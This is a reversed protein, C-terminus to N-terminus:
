ISAVRIASVKDSLTFRFRMDEGFWQIYNTGWGNNFLSFHIGKTIDPQADSFYIPSREGLAIVPADLTEISFSGQVDKYSLGDALAHMHRNGGAVVNFPSIAQGTKELVWNQAEPANPRFTLWMAEPLRNAAKGFWSFNLQVIPETDPLIVELYMNAPWATLGGRESADDEIRLQAVIRYGEGDRDAWCNTLSPLWTRSQAGFHEINPKGFDKPAWDAKSTVYSALFRDYDHKSLTQYAFLALPHEASAWERGNAKSRLRRIAGTKPDLALTFHVAEIPEDLKHPKLESVIPRVPKLAALRRVAEERLEVPLTAVGQDIDDRKETWSTEVTKYNPRDLM